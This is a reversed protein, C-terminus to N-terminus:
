AIIRQQGDAGVRDGVAVVTVVVEFGGGVIAGREGDILSCRDKSDARLGDGVSGSRDSRDPVMQTCGLPGQGGALSVTVM